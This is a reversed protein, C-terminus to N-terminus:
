EAENKLILDIQESILAIFDPYLQPHKRTLYLLLLGLTTYRLQSAFQNAKEQSCLGNEVCYNWENECLRDLFSYIVEITPQQRAVDSTKELYFLEFISPYQIFFKIYAQTIAKIKTLGSEAHKTEESIFTECEEQFDVVCEFILDRIDKFYNYLTAYSYGAQDAINRVSLARLGEGKLINKTADIFYARMRQEQIQKKEM